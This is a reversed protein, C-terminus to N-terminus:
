RSVNNIKDAIQKKLWESDDVKITKIKDLSLKTNWMLAYRVNEDPDISLINFIKDNIKRKRAVASRVNPDQDTCLIELIEIQITKNYIVWTKLEPYTKIVDLWVSMDATDHGARYQEEMNDSQRLRIFEDATKIM